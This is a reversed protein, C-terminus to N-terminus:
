AAGGAGVPLICASARGTGLPALAPRAADCAPLRAPCRPAFRCGPPLADPPPVTGGITALAEGRRALAPMSRLLARTYPHAPSAFLDRVPATELARGAYMVLVRDAFEAVLGLDHTIFLVAMGLRARLDRLLDLIQAQVTVDLATTPEDAILLRPRCALALATMVRQRLGGSLEHPYADLRSGPDPIGVLELLERVRGRAARLSLGEHRRLVEGVQRAVTFVPNLSTMPEQFIMAIDRGRLDRIAAGGPARLDVGGFALERASVRGAPGPVLGMLALAAMSKGSGSEGVVALAEGEAVDLDLDDVVPRPAGAIPFAVTLGRARLLATM